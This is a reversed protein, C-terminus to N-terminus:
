ALSDSGKPAQRDTSVAGTGAFENLYAIASDTIRSELELMVLLEKADELEHIRRTAHKRSGDLLRDLLSVDASALMGALEDHLWTECGAAKGARVAEEAAAAIGKTFISRLLKRSAASGPEPGINEVAMGIPKFLQVFKEAGPGSAFCPTKIGNGPVTGMLAGDVFLAGSPAVLGAVDQKLRRSGSNMDAYIQGPDLSDLAAAAAEIAVTASNISLVADSGAVAAATTEPHSAGELRRTPDPDWVRVTAGAAVLDRGISTGAEGIGLLTVVLQATM